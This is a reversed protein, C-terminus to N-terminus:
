RLTCLTPRVGGPDSRRRPGNAAPRPHSSLGRPEALLNLWWAPTRDSGLNSGVVAYRCGDELYLLVALRDLGSKRGRTLLGLAPFGLMKAGINGKSVEFVKRYLVWFVEVVPRPPIM